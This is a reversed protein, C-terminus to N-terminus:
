PAKNSSCNFRISYRKPLLHFTQHTKIILYPLQKTLATEILIAVAIVILILIQILTVNMSRRRYNKPATETLAAM